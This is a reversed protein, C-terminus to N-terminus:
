IRRRIEEAPRAAGQLTVEWTDAVFLLLDGPEAKMRESFKTSCSRPQLEQRDAVCLKGDPEVKFWALGKAEFQKVYETLEDILKRRTFARRRGQRQHRPGEQGCDATERFVRFDVTAAIDTCDILECGFRLDPADHGFREM